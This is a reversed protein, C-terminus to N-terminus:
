ESLHFMGRPENSMDEASWRVNKLVDAVAFDSVGRSFCGSKFLRLLLGNRVGELSTQPVESVNKSVAEVIFVVYGFHGPDLRGRCLPVDFLKVSMWAAYWWLLLCDRSGLTWCVIAGILSSGTRNVRGQRSFYVLIFETPIGKLLQVEHV